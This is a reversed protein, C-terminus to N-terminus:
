GGDATVPLATTRMYAGYAPGRPDRPMVLTWCDITM